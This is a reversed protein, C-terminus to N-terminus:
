ANTFSLGLSNSPDLKQMEQMRQQMERVFRQYLLEKQDAPSDNTPATGAVICSCSIFIFALINLFRKM